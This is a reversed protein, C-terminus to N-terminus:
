IFLHYLMRFYRFVLNSGRFGGLGRCSRTFRRRMLEIAVDAIIHLDLIQGGMSRGGVKCLTWSGFVGSALLSMWSAVFGFM